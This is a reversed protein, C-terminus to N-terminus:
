PIRADRVGRWGVGMMQAARIVRVIPATAGRRSTALLVLLPLPPLHSQLVSYSPLALCCPTRFLIAICLLIAVRGLTMNCNGRAVYVVLISEKVFLM